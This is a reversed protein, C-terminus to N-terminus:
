YGAYGIFVQFRYKKYASDVKDNPVPERNEPQKLFNLM